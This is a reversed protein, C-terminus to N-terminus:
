ENNFCEHFLKREACLEKLSAATQEVSMKVSGHWLAKNEMFSIGKGKITHAIIFTPKQNNFKKNIGNEIQEFSHGNIEIVNWNFSKLKNKLPKIGIINENYNDSQLKNYDLIAVLNKLKHQASFMIGEWIQGEQMEGDGVIVFVKNNSKMYKLTLAQGVAFSFGQGLSGTSAEIWPTNLRCPHGQYISNIKRLSLIKKYDLVNMAALTSYVAPVSHGKSLILRDRKFSNFQKIKKIKLRKMYIYVVLEMCSLVGGPHGSGAKYISMISYIKSLNLVNDLDNFKKKKM